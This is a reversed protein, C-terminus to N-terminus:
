GGCSLATRCANRASSDIADDCLVSGPACLSTQVATDASAVRGSWANEHRNTV